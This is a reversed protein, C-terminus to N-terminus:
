FFFSKIRWKCNTYKGKRCNICVIAIREGRSTYRKKKVQSSSPKNLKGMGVSDIEIRNSENNLRERNTNNDKHNDEVKKETINENTKSMHDEESEKIQFILSNPSNNHSNMTSVTFVHFFFFFFAYPISSGKTRM